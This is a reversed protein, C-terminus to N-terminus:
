TKRIMNFTERVAGGFFLLAVGGSIIGLTMVNAM